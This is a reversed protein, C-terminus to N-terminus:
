PKRGAKNKSKDKENNGATEIQACRIEDAKGNGWNVKVGSINAADGESLKQVLDPSSPVPDLLPGLKGFNVLAPRGRLYCSEDNVRFAAYNVCIGGLPLGKPFIFTYKFNCGATAELHVEMPFPKDPAPFELLRPGQSTSDILKGTSGAVKWAHIQAREQLPDSEDRAVAFLYYHTTAEDTRIAWSAFNQRNRFEFTLDMDFDSIPKRSDSLPPFLVPARDNVAIEHNDDVTLGQAIKPRPVVSQWILSAPGSWRIWAPPAGDFNGPLYENQNSKNWESLPPDLTWYADVSRNQFRPLYLLLYILLFIGTALTWLIKFSPFCSILLLTAGVAIMPIGLVRQKEDAVLPFGGAFLAVAVNFLWDPNWKRKTQGEPRVAQAVAQVPQSGSPRAPTKSGEQAAQKDAAQAPQKNDTADVRPVLNKHGATRPRQHRKGV